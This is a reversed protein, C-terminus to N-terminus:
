PFECFGTENHKDTCFCLVDPKTGLQIVIQVLLLDLSLMASTSTLKFCFTDVIWMNNLTIANNYQMTASKGFREVCM